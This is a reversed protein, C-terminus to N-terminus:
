WHRRMVSAPSVGRARHARGARTTETTCLTGLLTQYRAVLSHWLTATQEPLLCPVGQLARLMSDHGTRVSSAPTKAGRSVCSGGATDCFCAIFSRADGQPAPHVRCRRCTRVPQQQQAAPAVCLANGQAVGVAQRTVAVAAPLPGCRGTRMSCSGTAPRGREGWRAAGQMHLPAFYVM